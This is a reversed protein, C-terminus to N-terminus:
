QDATRASSIAPRVQEGYGVVVARQGRCLGALSRRTQDPAPQTPLRRRQMRDSILSM